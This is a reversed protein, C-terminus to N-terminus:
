TSSVCWPAFSNEDGEPNNLDEEHEDHNSKKTNRSANENMIFASSVTLQISHGVICYVLHGFHVCGEQSKEYCELQCKGVLSIGIQIVTHAIHRIRVITSITRRARCLSCGNVKTIIFEILVPIQVAINMMSMTAATLELALVVDIIPIKISTTKSYTDEM